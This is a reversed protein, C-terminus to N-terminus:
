QWGNSIVSRVSGSVDRPTNTASASFPRSKKKAQGMDRVSVLRSHSAPDAPVASSVPQPSSLGMTGDITEITRAGTKHGACKHSPAGSPPLAYPELYAAAVDHELWIQDLELRFAADIGM